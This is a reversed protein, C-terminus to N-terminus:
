PSDNTQQISLRSRFYRAPEQVLNTPYTLNTWVCLPLEAFTRWPGAPNEAVELTTTVTTYNTGNPKALVVEESIEGEVLNTDYATVAFYVTRFNCVPFLVAFTNSGCDQAHIYRGSDYGWYVKYGAVFDAPVPADWALSVTQTCPAPPINVSVVPMPPQAFILTVALLSCVAAGLRKVNRWRYRRANSAFFLNRRSTHQRPL